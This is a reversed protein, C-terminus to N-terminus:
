KYRYFIFDNCTTKKTILELDSSGMSLTTALSQIKIYILSSQHPSQNLNESEFRIFLNHPLPAEGAIRTVASIHLFAAKLYKM